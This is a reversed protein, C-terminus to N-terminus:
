RFKEPYPALMKKSHLWWAFCKAESNREDETVKMHKTKDLECAMGYLHQSLPRMNHRELFELWPKIPSGRSHMTAADIALIAKEKQERLDANQLMAHLEKSISNM